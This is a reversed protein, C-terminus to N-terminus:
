ADEVEAKKVARKKGAIGYMDGKLAEIDVRMKEITDTFGSMLQSIRDNNEKLNNELLTLDSKEAYESSNKEVASGFQREVLDFVRITPKGTADAQKLYVVPESTHWLTIAVNPAVPYNEVDKDGNVWIMSSQPQSSGSYPINYNGYSPFSSVAASSPNFYQNPYYANYNPM